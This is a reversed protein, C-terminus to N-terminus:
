VDVAKGVSGINRWRIRVLFNAQAVLKGAGNYRDAGLYRCELGAVPHDALGSDGAPAASEAQAAAVVEAEM